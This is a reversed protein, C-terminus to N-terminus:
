YKTWAAVTGDVAQHDRDSGTADGHLLGHRQVGRAIRRDAVWEAFRDVSGGCRCIEWAQLVGMAGSPLPQPPARVDLHGAFGTADQAEM